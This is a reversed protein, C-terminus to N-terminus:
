TLPTCAASHGLSVCGIWLFCGRSLTFQPLSPWFSVALAHAPTCCGLGGGLVAADQARQSEHQTICICAAAVLNFCYTHLSFLPIISHLAVHSGVMADDGSSSSSAQESAAAGSVDSADSPDEEIAGADLLDDDEEEEEEKGGKDAAEKEGREPSTHDDESIELVPESILPTDTNEPVVFEDKRLRHNPVRPEM